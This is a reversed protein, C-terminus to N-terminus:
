QSAGVASQEQIDDLDNADEVESAEDAENQDGSQDGCQEDIDDTDVDSGTAESADDADDQQDCVQVAPTNGHGGALVLGSTTMVGIGVLTLIAVLGLTWYARKGFRM